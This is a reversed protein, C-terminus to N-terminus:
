ENKNEKQNNKNKGKFVFAYLLIVTISALLVIVILTGPNMGAPDIEDTKSDIESDETKTNDETEEAENSTDGSANTQEEVEEEPAEVEELSSEDFAFRATYHHDYDEDLVDVVIHMKMEIPNALDHDEEVKFEIVRTDEAEDASIVDVDVFDAGQPAQLGVVWDSHNISIQMIREGNEAILTAPKDFYDNAVSVSDNDASLVEYDVEYHGDETEAYSTHLPIFILTILTVILFNTTFKKPM